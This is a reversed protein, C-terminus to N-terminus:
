GRRTDKNFIKFNSIIGDFENGATRLTGIDIRDLDDPIGADADTGAEAGDLIVTYPTTSDIYLVRITHIEGNVVDSSGTVDGPNEATARANLDFVDGASATIMTIRDAGSGGDSLDFMGHSPAMQDHNSILFKCEVAGRGNNELNGDDGKYRLLDANRTVETAATPIYSTMHGDEQIQAGWAYLDVTSGDGSFTRDNDAPAPQIRITHPAVTGTFSISCRFWGDGWDESMAEIVGAEQTGVAGDVVRFWTGGNAITDNDLLLYPQAAEKVWVSATWTETTLNATAQRVGHEGDTSDAVIAATDTTLEKNPATVEGEIADGIDLLTWTTDLDESQLLKNTNSHESLYGEILSSNSDERRVVRMWGDSVLYLKRADGEIKDLYALTARTQVTPTSTGKAVQPLIGIMSNFRELAVSAQLHTDLWGSRAWMAAYALHHGPETTGDAQAGISAVAAVSISNVSTLDVAAGSAVGNVYIQGSGSRDLFVIIHYWCLDVLTASFINAATSGDRINMQVKESSDISFFWGTGVGTDRHAFLVGASASANVRLVLEIVQDETGIDGISDTNGLYYDGGPGPGRVSTDGSGLLPVGQDFTYPASGATRALSEGFGGSATWASGSSVDSAVYKLKPLETLSNITLAEDLFSLGGVNGDRFLAFTPRPKGAGRPPFISRPM